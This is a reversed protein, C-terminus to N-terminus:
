LQKGALSANGHTLIFEDGREVAQWIAADHRGALMEDCLTRMDLVVDFSLPVFFTSQGNLYDEQMPDDVSNEQIFHGGFYTYEGLSRMREIFRDLADRYHAYTERFQGKPFRVGVVCGSGVADGTFVCRHGHDIFVTHNATHGPLDWMEVDCGGLAIVDGNKLGIVRQDEAKRERRIGTGFDAGMATMVGHMREVHGAIDAADKEHIYTTEFEDIHLMHDLHPHTVALSVPLRTLRKVLPMLPARGMTTDVLLAREEGEILYCSAMFWDDIRFVGPKVWTVYYVDKRDQAYLWDLVEPSSFVASGPATAASEWETYRTLEGGDTRLAHILRRTGALFRRGNRETPASAHIAADDAAHFAWIPVFKANRARYPDGCGGVAVAGAFLRPYSGIMHWVGIAGDGQGAITTRCLDMGYRRRIDFLLRQLAQANEPDTWDRPAAELIFSPHRAQNEEARLRAAVDDDPGGSLCVVLPLPAEGGKPEFLEYEVTHDNWTFRM